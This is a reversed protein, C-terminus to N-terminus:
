IKRLLNFKKEFIWYEVQSNDLSSILNPIPLNVLNLNTGATLSPMYLQAVISSTNTTNTTTNLEIFITTSTLAPIVVLLQFECIDGVTVSSANFCSGITTLTSNQCHM